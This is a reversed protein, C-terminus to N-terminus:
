RTKTFTLIYVKECKQEKLKQTCIELTAGSAFIDDIIFVNKNKINNESCYLNDSLYIKKEGGLGMNKMTRGMKKQAIIKQFKIELNSSISKAIEEMPQYSVRKVNPPPITLIDIPLQDFMAKIIATGINVLDDKSSYSNRYKFNHLLEGVPTYITDFYHRAPDIPRSSISHLAMAYGLDWPGNLNILNNPDISYKSLIETSDGNTM